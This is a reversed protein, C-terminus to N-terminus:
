NFTEQIWEIYNEVGDTLSLYEYGNKEFHVIPLIHGNYFYMSASSFVIVDDEQLSFDYNSWNVFAFEGYGTEANVPFQHKDGLLDIELFLEDIEDKYEISKIEGTLQFYNEEQSYYSLMKNRLPADFDCSVLCLICILHCLLIIIKKM